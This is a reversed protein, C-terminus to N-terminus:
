RLLRRIEELKKRCENEGAKILDAGDAFKDWGIDPIQPTIVIDADQCDHTALNFRLYDPIKDIFSITHVKDPNTIRNGDAFFVSDLNVALIVDAGMEAVVSVPVSQSLGGDILFRKGIKYPSFAIPVSGSARVAHAIKGKDIVVTQATVLDTAVAKFPIICNEIKGGSLYDDLYKVLKEGKLLGTNLVPDSFLRLLTKYDLGAFFKEVPAIEGFHAYLGGVLSGISCGAIYDIRIGNEELVKLIGIHVLGKAGGSGLAIGFKKHKRFLM